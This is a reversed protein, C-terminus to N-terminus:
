YGWLTIQTHVALQLKKVDALSGVVILWLFLRYFVKLHHLLYVLLMGLMGGLTHLTHYVMQEQQSEKDAGLAHAPQHALHADGRYIWLPVKGPQATGLVPHGIQQAPKVDATGILDPTDVNCIYRHRVAEHVERCYYIDVATRDHGPPQVVRKVLLVADLHESHGHLSMTHRLNDIGVLAALVRAMQPQGGTLFEADLDTHIATSAALVVDPYLAEPTGDLSLIDVDIWLTINRTQSLTDPIVDLIVVVTTRVLADGVLNRHLSVFISSSSFNDSLFSSM